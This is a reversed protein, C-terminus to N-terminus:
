FARKGRVLFSNFLNGAALSVLLYDYKVGLLYVAFGSTAVLFGFIIGKLLNLPSTKPEILMVLVFYFNILAFYDFILAQKLHAYVILSISMTALYSIVLHLRKTKFAIFLGPVIIVWPNVQCWGIAAKFFISVALLGFNAPNFIHKNRFKFIHKSLIALFSAFIYYLIHQRADLVTGVILGTIVASSPYIFRRSKVFNILLDAFVAVLISVFIRFLLASFDGEQFGPWLALISLFLIMYTKISLRLRFM